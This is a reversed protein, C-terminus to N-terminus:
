RVQDGVAARFSSVLTWDGHMGPLYILTRKIPDGHIRLQIQEEIGRRSGEGNLARMRPSAIQSGQNLIEIVTFLFLSSRSRMKRELFTTVAASESSAGAM